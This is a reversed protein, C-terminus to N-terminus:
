YVTPYCTMLLIFSVSLFYNFVPFITRGPCHVMLMLAWFSEFERFSIVANSTGPRSIYPRAQLNWNTAYSGGKMM